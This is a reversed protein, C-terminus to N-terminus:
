LLAIPMVFPVSWAPIMSAVDRFMPLDDWRKIANVLGFGLVNELM